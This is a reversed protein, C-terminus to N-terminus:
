GYWGLKHAAPLCTYRGIGHHAVPRLCLAILCAICVEQQKYSACNTHLNLLPCDVPYVAGGGRGEGGRGEGGRGEGGRGEGGRGEGGRGEGGRGEGGRGEGGRGEGGRGEGGRGEGGGQGRDILQNIQTSPYINSSPTSIHRHSNGRVSEVHM